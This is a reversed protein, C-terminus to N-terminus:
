WAATQRLLPAEVAFDAACRDAPRLKNQIEAKYLGLPGCGVRLERGAPRSRARGGCAAARTRLESNQINFESNAGPVPAAARLRKYYLHKATFAVDCVDAAWLRQKNAPHRTDLDTAFRGAARLRGRASPQMSADRLDARAPGDARSRAQRATQHRLHRSDVLHRM